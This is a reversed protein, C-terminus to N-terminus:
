ELTTKPSIAFCFSDISDSAHAPPVMFLAAIGIQQFVNTM